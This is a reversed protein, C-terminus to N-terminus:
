SATRYLTGSDCWMRPTNQEVKSLVGARKFVERWWMEELWISTLERFVSLSWREGGGGGWEFNTVKNEM